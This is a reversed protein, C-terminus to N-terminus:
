FTCRIPRSVLHCNDSFCAFKEGSTGTKSLSRERVWTPQKQFHEMECQHEVLSFKVAENCFASAPVPDYRWLNLVSGQCKCMIEGSLGFALGRRALVWDRRSNVM